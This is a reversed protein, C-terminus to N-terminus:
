PDISFGTIEAIRKTLEDPNDGHEDLIKKIEKQKSADLDKESEKYKEEISSIIEFYRRQASDRKEIEVSHSDNIMDIEKKHSDRANQLVKDVGSSDRTLLWIVIPISAGVLIQWYKKCWALCKRLFTKVTLWTIM